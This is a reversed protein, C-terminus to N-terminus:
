PRSQESVNKQNFPVHWDGQLSHTTYGLYTRIANFAHHALAHQVIKGHAILTFTRTSPILKIFLADTKKTFFLAERLWSEQEQVEQSLWETVSNKQWLANFAHIRAYTDIWLMQESKYLPSTTILRILELSLPANLTHQSTVITELADKKEIIITFTKNDSAATLGARVLTEIWDASPKKSPTITHLSIFNKQLTNQHIILFTVFMIPLFLLLLTSITVLNSYEAIILASSYGYFLSLLPKQKDQSLWLSLYYFLVSILLIEVGDQWRYVDFHWWFPIHDIMTYEGLSVFENIRIIFEYGLFLSNIKDVEKFFVNKYFIINNRYNIM